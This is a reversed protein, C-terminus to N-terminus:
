IFNYSGTELYRLKRNVDAKVSSQHKKDEHWMQEQLTCLRLPKELNEVKQPM